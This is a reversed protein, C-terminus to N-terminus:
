LETITINFDDFWIRFRSRETSGDSPLDDGSTDGIMEIKHLFSTSNTQYYNLYEPNHYNAGPYWYFSIYTLTNISYVKKGSPATYLLIRNTNVQGDIRAKTDMGGASEIYTANVVAYIKTNNSGFTLQVSGDIRINGGYENDGAYKIPPLQHYVSSNISVNVPTYTPVFTQCYTGTFGSPCDCGCDANVTGGNQCVTTCQVPIVIVVTECNTGTFGSPCDCGCESNVTGGNSCIKNCPTPGEDDPNCSAIMVTTICIALITKFNKM